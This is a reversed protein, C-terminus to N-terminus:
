PSTTTTTTASSTLNLAHAPASVKVAKGYKSLVLTSVETPSNDAIRYVYPQGRSAIDM